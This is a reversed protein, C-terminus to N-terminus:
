RPVVQIPSLQSNRVVSFLIIELKIILSVSMSNVMCGKFFFQLLVFGVSLLRTNGHHYGWGENLPMCTSFFCCPFSAPGKYLETEM